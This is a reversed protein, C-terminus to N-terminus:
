LALRDVERMVDHVAAAFRDQLAAEEAAQQDDTAENNDEIGPPDLGTDDDTAWLYERWLLYCGWIASLLDELLDPGPRSPDLRCLRAENFIADRSEPHREALDVLHAVQDMMTDPDPLQGDAVRLANGVLANVAESPSQGADLRELVDTPTEVPLAEIDDAEGIVETWHTHTDTAGSAVQAAGRLWAAAAVSASTPDIATKLRAASGFLDTALLDWAAQVQTPSAAARSLVVAQASRGSLDGLEANAVAELETEVERKLAATVEPDGLEALLHGIREANWLLPSYSEIDPNGPDTIVTPVDDFSKRDEGLRWAETNVEDPEVYGGGHTYTRWAAKSLGTLWMALAAGASVGPTPDFDRHLTAVPCARGSVGTQWTALLEHRGEDFFYSTLRGEEATM